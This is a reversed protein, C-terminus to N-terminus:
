KHNTETKQEHKKTDHFNFTYVLVGDFACIIIIINILTILIIIIITITMRKMKLYYQQKVNVM